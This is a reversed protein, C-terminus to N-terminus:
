CDLATKIMQSTIPWDPNEKQTGMQLTDLGPQNPHAHHIPAPRGMVGLLKLELSGVQFDQAGLLVGRLHNSSSSGYRHGTSDSCSSSTGTDVTFSHASHGTRGKVSLVDKQNFPSNGTYHSVEKLKFKDTHLFENEDLGESETLFVQRSLQLDDLRHQFLQNIQEVNEEENMQVSAELEAVEKRYIAVENKLWENERIEQQSQKDLRSIAKKTALQKKESICKETQKNIGDVKVELSRQMYDSIKHFDEQMQSLEQELRQIRKSNTKYGFDRYEVLYKKEEELACINHELDKLHTQMEELQQENRKSIEWQEKTAHEVQERNVVKSQELEREKEKVEKLLTKFHTLQEEKLDDKSEKFQKNKELLEQVQLQFEQIETEKIQMQFTLLAEASSTQDELRGKIKKKKKGM